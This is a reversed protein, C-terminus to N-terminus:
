RRALDRSRDPLVDPAPPRRADGHAHGGEPGADRVHVRGGRPVSEAVDDDLEVAHRPVHRLPRVGRLAGERELRRARQAAEPGREAARLPRLRPQVADAM